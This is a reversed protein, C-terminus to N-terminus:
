EWSVPKFIRQGRMESKVFVYVGKGLDGLLGYVKWDCVKDSEVLKAKKGKGKTVMMKKGSDCEYADKSVGGCAPCRFEPKVASAQFAELTDFVKVSDGEIQPQNGDQYYNMYWYNRSKEWSNLIDVESLGTKEAYHKARELVWALKARYDHFHPRGHKEDGHCDEDVAAKLRRYGECDEIPLKTEM